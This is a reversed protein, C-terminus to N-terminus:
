FVLYPCNYVIQAYFYHTYISYPITFYILCYLNRLIGLEAFNPPFKLSVFPAKNQCYQNEFLILQFNPLYNILFAYRLLKM